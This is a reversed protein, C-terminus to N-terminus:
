AALYGAVFQDQQDPYKARVEVTGYTFNLSTWQIDGSVYPWATPTHWVTGDPNFDGCTWTEAATTITLGNNVSVQQPINCETEDQSYEGHRSIVTWASSLSSGAFNDFFIVKAASSATFNIGTLNTGGITVPQSVPTYTVSQSTPTVVYSGNSLGTFSYNGSSDSMTTASASGSLTVLSGAGSTAPSITGSISYTQPATATATFNQGTLNAGNVTASLSTPTFSFGSKSPTITYSGNSLGTFSYNGSSDATVAMSAAGTLTVATGAGGSTPSITGSITYTSAGGGSGGGTTAPLVEVLTLNYHDGTPATDNISVTSGALPTPANQGQVWYTDGAAALYQHIISQNSGVVRSVAHDWDNGVGLVWSNNRTTVLSATPAGSTATGSATAGVAGSGNSGTTDVGKFSILTFSSAAPSSLTATVVANTLPSTAFARWIESTGPQTNTRKVLSWTLGAGSMSSVQNTGGSPGDTAILALLLENGASTTFAPTSINSSAISSDGWTQADVILVGSGSGQAVATFNVTAGSNSIAVTSSPPTFTYGSKSLTVTYSGNSLGTFSYNGSSDSM